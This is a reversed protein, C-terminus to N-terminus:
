GGVAGAMQFVPLYMVIVIGGVMVGMVLLLAPEIWTTLQALRTDLDAEYFEAIDRLMTELSGTEEGVSLMEIALRPLVKPRDLAKALTAGERIEDVARVLQQSVFRNSVAACASQLADVLPTGGGLITGLTRTLQVTNHQVVIQGAVPLTLFLRDISLRGASTTYYARTGLLIGIVVVIAPLALSESQTVVDLLLQTVWPLTKASEGYVSVFTPMVYTLLFGIVAMGILVLVLPYSIAKTVKQRLAIMLKLYAVYRQLVDSLNGSQEGAKVTAVYLESFYLSHKALANSTSAGGRIDDKVERLVQQFGAHGAREILLDWVRLIPLGSKVLALLEQNFILFQGLPLKGLLWPKGLEVTARGRKHLHFVLLGQSELKARVLSEEEGEVHGYITSGDPRAVRYAFVAM